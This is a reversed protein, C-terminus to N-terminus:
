NENEIDNILQLLENDYDFDIYLCTNNQFVILNSQLYDVDTSFIVANM